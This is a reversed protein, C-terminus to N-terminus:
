TCYNHWPSITQKPWHLIKNKCTLLCKVLLKGCNKLVNAYPIIRNHLTITAHWFNNLCIHTMYKINVLKCAHLNKKKCKWSIHPWKTNIAPSWAVFKLLKLFIPYKTVKNDKMTANDNHCSFVLFIRFLAIPTPKKKHTKKWVYQQFLIDVDVAYFYLYGNHKWQRVNSWVLCKRNSTM